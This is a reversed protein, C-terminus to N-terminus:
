DKELARAVCLLETTADGRSLMEELRGVDETAGAESARRKADEIQGRREAATAGCVARGDVVVRLFKGAGDGGDGDAADVVVVVDDRVVSSRGRARERPLHRTSADTQARSM